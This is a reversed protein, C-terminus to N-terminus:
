QGMGSQTPAPAPAAGAAEITALDAPRNKFFARAEGLAKDLAAQDGLVTYSRILRQWGPVDDPNAKLRTALGNVMAVIAPDAKLNPGAIGRGEALAIEQDLVEQAAPPSESRLQRLVAIGEATRGAEIDAKALFYRAPLLKPDLELAKRFPEVVKPTFKGAALQLRVEGLAEWAEARDPRAALAKELSREASPFEGADAEARGLAFLMAPQVDAPIPKKEDALARRILAVLQEPQMQEPSLSRWSELRRAYAQDERSPAGAFMYVALAALAALAAVAIAALGSSKSPATEPEAEAEGLLRRAAEAHAAKREDDGLLGRAALDETESLQRRYVSQAADATALVPRRAMLVILGFAAGALLAAAIWLTIM